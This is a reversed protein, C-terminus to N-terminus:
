TVKQRLQHKHRREQLFKMKPSSDIYILKVQKRVIGSKLSTTTKNDFGLKIAQIILFFSCLSLSNNSRTCLITTFTHFFFAEYKIELKQTTYNFVVQFFISMLKQKITETKM